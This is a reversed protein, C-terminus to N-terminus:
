SDDEPGLISLVRWNDNFSCLMVTANHLSHINLAGHVFLPVTVKKKLHRKVPLWWKSKQHKNKKLKHSTFHNNYRQRTQPLCKQGSSLLSKSLPVKKYHLSCCPLPSLATPPPLHHISLPLLTIAPCQCEDKITYTHTRLVQRGYCVHLM